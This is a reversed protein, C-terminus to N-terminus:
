PCALLLSYSTLLSRLFTRDQCFTDKSCVLSLSLMNTSPPYIILFPLHCIYPLDSFSDVCLSASQRCPSDKSTSRHITTSCFPGFHPIPSSTANGRPAYTAYSYAKLLPMVGRASWPTHETIGSTHKDRSLILHADDSCLM